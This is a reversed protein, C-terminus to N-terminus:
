EDEGGGFYDFPSKVQKDAFRVCRAEWHGDPLSALDVESGNEAAAEVFGEVDFAPTPWFRLLRYKGLEGMLESIAMMEDFRSIQPSKLSPTTKPKIRVQGTNTLGVTVSGALDGFGLDHYIEASKLLNRMWYRAGGASQEKAPDLTLITGAEVNIQIERLLDLHRRVLDRSPYYAVDVKRGYM